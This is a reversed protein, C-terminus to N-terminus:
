QFIHVANNEGDWEVRAQLAESVARVPVLTRDNKLIAPVDLFIEKGNVTMVSSGITLIITQNRKVATVKQRADDWEIEAGLAEFIGRVPVLVRDNQKVPMVDYRQKMNNIYIQIGNLESKFNQLEINMIDAAEASPYFLSNFSFLMFGKYRSVSRADSLQRALLNSNQQWELKGTGAYHDSLGVKYAALGVYLDVHSTIENWEKLVKDYPVYPNEYGFYIQPCLYDVYGKQTGWKRVDAYISDYNDKIIGSPSIGFLLNSNFSKIAQYVGQILQNVNEMRWEALSLGAQAKQYTISDFGPDTTPYFYDDFHIGDVPYSEIIEKVGDIVLQQVQPVAPNLYWNGGSTLIYDEKEQAWQHIISGEPVNAPSGIRYPNIWAHLKLDKAHAQKLLIALPDYGPNKGPTGSIYKSWPFYKSPYMADAFPRVHIIVTNLGLSKVKDFMRDVSSTFDMENKGSLLSQYEIYSIWVAKMEAEAPYAGSGATFLISLLLLVSLLKRTM